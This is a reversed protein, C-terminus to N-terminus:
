RTLEQIIGIMFDVTFIVVMGVITWMLTKKGRILRERSDAATMILFGSYIIMIMGIPVAIRKLLETITAVFCEITECKTVPEICLYDGPCSYDEQALTFIPTILIIVSVIITIIIIKEKMIKNYGDQLWEAIGVWPIPIHSRPPDWM